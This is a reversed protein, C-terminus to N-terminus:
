AVQQHHHCALVLFVNSSSWCSMSALTLHALVHRRFCWVCVCVCVGVGVCVCVCVCVGVGVGVCVCVCVCVCSLPFM